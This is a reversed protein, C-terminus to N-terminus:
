AVVERAEADMKQIDTVLAVNRVHVALENIDNMLDRALRIKNANVETIHELQAAMDQMGHGSVVAVALLLSLVAGFGAGLRRAISSNLKFARFM